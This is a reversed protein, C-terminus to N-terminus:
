KKEKKVEELVEPHKKKMYALFNVYEAMTM